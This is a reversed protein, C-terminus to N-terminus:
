VVKESIRTIIEWQKPSIITREGHQHFRELIDEIFRREWETMDDWNLDVAKDLKQLWKFEERKM